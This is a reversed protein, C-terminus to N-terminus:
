RRPRRSPAKPRAPIPPRAPTSPRVVHPAAPRGGLPVATSPRAFGQARTVSSDSPVGQPVRGPEIRLMAPPPGLMTPQALPHWAPVIGGPREYPRTGGLAVTAREGGLVHLAVRPEFVVSRPCAVFRPGPPALDLAFAERGRWIWMPPMPAWGIWDYGADGVRWVVWAGAYVRGPIWCWGRGDIAVWRGYHFPVWGWSWDSVWVWEGNHVWYGATVYPTFDTGVEQASPVWVTGYAPDEVWTGHGDLPARFDSLASPDTDAYADGDVDIAVDPAAASGGPAPPGTAPLAAPYSPPPTPAPECAPALAVLSILTAVILIGSRHLHLSLMSCRRPLNIFALLMARASATVCLVADILRYFM